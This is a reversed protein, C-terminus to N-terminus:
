TKINTNHIWIGMIWKKLGTCSDRICMEPKQVTNSAYENVVGGIDKQKDKITDFIDNFVEEARSRRNM